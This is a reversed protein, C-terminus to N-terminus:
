GALAIGCLKLDGSKGKKFSFIITSESELEGSKNFSKVEYIITKKSDNIVRKGKFFRDFYKEKFLQQLKNRLFKIDTIESDDVPTGASLDFPVACMMIVSDIKKEKPKDKKKKNRAQLWEQYEKEEKQRHAGEILKSGCEALGLHMCHPAFM